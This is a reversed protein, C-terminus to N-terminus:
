TIKGLFVFMKSVMPILCLYYFTCKALLFFFQFAKLSNLVSTGGADCVSKCNNIFQKAMLTKKKLSLSLSLSLFLQQNNVQGPRIPRMGQTTEGAPPHEGLRQRGGGPQSRRWHSPPSHTWLLRIWWGPWTSCGRAPMTPPHAALDFSWEIFM